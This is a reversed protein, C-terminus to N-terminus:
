RGSRDLASSPNKVHDVYKIPSVAQMEESIWPAMLTTPEYSHGFESYYWDLIDMAETEGVSIVSNRIVATSFFDPYKGLVPNLLRDLVLSGTYNPIYINDPVPNRVVHIRQVLPSSVDMWLEAIIEANLSRGLVIRGGHHM